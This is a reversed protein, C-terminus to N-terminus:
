QFYLSLYQDHNQSSTKLADFMSTLFNAKQGKGLMAALCNQTAVILNDLKQREGESLGYGARFLLPFDHELRAQCNAPQWNKQWNLSPL